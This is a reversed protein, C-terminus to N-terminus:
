SSYFIYTGDAFLVFKLLTSCLILHNIYKLFLLSGLISDQPVGCTIPLLNSKYQYYWVYQQREQLYNSFWSHLSVRINDNITDFANSLDVFIGVTSDKKDLAESIQDLTELLAM